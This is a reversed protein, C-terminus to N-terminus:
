RIGSYEESITEIFTKMASASRLHHVRKTAIQEAVLQRYKPTLKQHCLRLVRYSKLTSSWM